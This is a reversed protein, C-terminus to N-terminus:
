IVSGWIKCNVSMHYHTQPWISIKFVRRSPIWGDFGELSTIGNESLDITVVATCHMGIVNLVVECFNVNSFTHKADSSQTNVFQRLNLVTCSCIAVDKGFHFLASIVYKQNGCGMASRPSVHNNKRRRSHCCWLRLIYFSLKKPVFFSSHWRM